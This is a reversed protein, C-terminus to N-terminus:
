RKKWARCAMQRLAEESVKQALAGAVNQRCWLSPRESTYFGRSRGAEEVSLLQERVRSIM